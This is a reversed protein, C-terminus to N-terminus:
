VFQALCSTSEHDVSASVLLSYFTVALPCPIEKPPSSFQKPSSPISPILCYHYNCLLTFFVWFVSNYVKFPHIKYTFWRLFFLLFGGLGLGLWSQRLFCVNLQLILLQGMQKWDQSADAWVVLGGPSTQDKVSLGEAEQLGRQWPSAAPPWHRERRGGRGRTWQRVLCSHHVSPMGKPLVHPPPRPPRRDGVLKAQSHWGLFSLLLVSCGGTGRSTVKTVVRARMLVLVGAHSLWWPNLM